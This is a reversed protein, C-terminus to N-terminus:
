NERKTQSHLLCLSNWKMTNKKYENDRKIKKETMTSTTEYKVSVFKKQEFVYM